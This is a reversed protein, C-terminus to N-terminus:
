PAPRESTMTTQPGMSLESNTAVSLTGNVDFSTTGRPEGPLHRGGNVALTGTPDVTITQAAITFDNALTRTGNKIVLTGFTLTGGM